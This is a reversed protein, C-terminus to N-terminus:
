RFDTFGIARFTSANGSAGYIMAFRSLPEDGAKGHDERPASIM